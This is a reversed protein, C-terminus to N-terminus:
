KTNSYIIKNYDNSYETKLESYYLSKAKNEKANSNMFYFASIINLIIVLFLFAPKFFGFAWKEEALGGEKRREDIKAKLRTYFYPDVKLQEDPKLYKLTKKIENESNEM